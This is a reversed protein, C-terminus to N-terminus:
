PLGLADRCERVHVRLSEDRTLLNPPQVDYQTRAIWVSYLSDLPVKAETYCAVIAPTVSDKIWGEDYPPAPQPM